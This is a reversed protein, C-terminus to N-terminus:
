AEKQKSKRPPPKSRNLLRNSTTPAVGAPKFVPGIGLKRLIRDEAAHMRRYDSDDHDDHGTLHLLGHVVYLLLEHEVRTGHQRAQRAAEPVCVVIEGATVNGRTDYDLEFTLVDTPGAINMFQVHLRSMTADGVLAVSVSRPCRPVATAVRPFMRKLFSAHRGGARASLEIAIPTPM